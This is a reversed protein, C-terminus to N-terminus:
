VDFRTSVGVYMPFRRLFSGFVVQYVFMAAYMHYLIVVHYFILRYTNYICVHASGKLVLQVQMKPSLVHM